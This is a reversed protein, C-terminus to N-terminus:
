LSQQMHITNWPEHKDQIMVTWGLKEWLQQAGPLFPHTHLYLVEIGEHRATSTLVKIMRSALGMKRFAPDVYLRVIEVVRQQHFSLEPRLDGDDDNFRRIFPRYGIIGVIQGNSKAVLFCADPSSYTTEFTALDQPIQTVDVLKGFLSRYASLAYEQVEQSSTVRDISIANMSVSRFSNLSSHEM